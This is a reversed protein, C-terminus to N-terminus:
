GGIGKTLDAKGFKSALFYMILIIIVIIIMIANAYQQFGQEAYKYILTTLTGTQPTVLLIILDLEKMVSIFLLMFSGFLGKRCLPLLIKTFRKFWSAGQMQAAEELEGGIQYMTSAGSRTAFPLENVISILIILTMTGYLAPLLLTPQAFMSLYIASLAIGPILYPLFSVQEILKASLSNRRKAIIYGFLLGIVSAVAAAVLAIHLSNRLAQVIGDNVLVGVEGSAIRPNSEGTWFHLTFNSWSFDGDALMFSQLVLVLMPLIAIVFMFCMVLMAVPIRWRGLDFLFKRSDKGGVTAYSKRRGIMKQNMYITSACVLLLILSLIYSESVMRNQMSGHLMTSITYYKIPLGLFAPVGFSGLAKSFTLIFASLIAPMVLPFTIKRLVTMRSAGLLSATEELSSNISSLTVSILLFFFSFYNLSLCIVIPLFGYSVWDPPSVGLLMQVIGQSGGIRDNKFISIWAFSTIWSPLMYPIIALFVLTKKFPLNTKTTLWALVGGIVMSLLSVWVSINISNLLPKYLLSQSIDSGLVRMWHYLTFAGPVAESVRRADNATWQLSHLVIEWLPLVVTYALFVLSLGTILYLPSTVYSKVRNFLRQMRLFSRPSQAGGNSVSM